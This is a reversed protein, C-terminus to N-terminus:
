LYAQMDAYHLAEFWGDDVIDFYLEQPSSVRLIGFCGRSIPAHRSEFFVQNLGVSRTPRGHYTKLELEPYHWHHHGFFHYDPGLKKIQELLRESGYDDRRGSPDFGRLRGHYTEHTLMIQIAGKLKPSWAERPTFKDLGNVALLSVQFAPEWTTEDLPADLTVIKGQPLCLLRGYGSFADEDYHGEALGEWHRDVALPEDASRAYEARLQDLYDHEEHNGPVFMLQLNTEAFVEDAIPHGVIRRMSEDFCRFYKSFGLEEPFKKAWRKSAKDMTHLGRYIGADGVCLAHHIKQGHEREWRACLLFPLLLRGHIDGFLAVNMM